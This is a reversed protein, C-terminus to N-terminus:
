HKKGTYATYQVRPKYIIFPCSIQAAKPCFQRYIYNAIYEKNSDSIFAQLKTARGILIPLVGTAMPDLTGTHGIKKETLLKGHGIKRTGAARRMIAVVDFSTFNQPKNIIIIGNM